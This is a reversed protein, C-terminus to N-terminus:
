AAAERDPTRATRVEYADADFRALLRRFTFTAKPWLVTNRGHSDLYWSSCGGTNWVTRRMRRQLGANWRKQAGARPEVAAYERARMTRVADRLYAVQSEIIFVMSTHGQGTNPGVLVFLNPFGHVTTGKYASMGSDAWEEALSRGARGVIRQAIPLETTWFGTAVVIADVPHEVGDSTVISEGTVRAIPDTVLDVNEAALAPYYSNSRLIRKCGLRFTPTVKARLGPDQIGKHLNVLAAKEAPKGLRPQWTFMPVYGEHAWYIGTRYLRSLAPVRRLAARESRSYRRDNRPIVWPATRQYVDLHGAVKQMEPVIQIASAGTGVVAVRKGALDVSHDWRASHFVPGAFSDLGDIKPLRPESLGGAASVLIRATVEGSTTRCRWLQAEDDWAAHELETGFVTRQRVGYEQAVRRLYAQIEPQPSYSSSWESNRAFSLSYLQSPVDCCAGPYTNDRWTGGVDDAKEIVVYDTEGDETLKIAACLGAFGSGVVLHEVHGPLQM